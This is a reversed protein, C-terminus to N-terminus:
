DRKTQKYFLVLAIAIAITLQLFELGNISFIVASISVLIKM